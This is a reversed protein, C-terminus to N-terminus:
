WKEVKLDQLISFPGTSITSKGMLCPSTGYNNSTTQITKFIHACGMGHGGDDRGTVTASEGDEQREAAGRSDWTGVVDWGWPSLKGLHVGNSLSPTLGLSSKRPDTSTLIFPYVYGTLSPLPIRNKKPHFCHIYTMELNIPTFSFPSYRGNM